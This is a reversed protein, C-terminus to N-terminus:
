RAVSVRQRAVASACQSAVSSVGRRSRAPELLGFGSGLRGTAHQESAGNLALGDGPGDHGRSKALREAASQASRMDRVTALLIADAHDRLALADMKGDSNISRAFADWEVLIPELNESIFDALRMLKGQQAVTTPTSTAKEM